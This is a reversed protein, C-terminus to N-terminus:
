QPRTSYVPDPKRALWTDYVTTRGAAAETADPNAVLKAAEWVVEYLLPAASAKLSYNGLLALDMNLYAVARSHLQTRFQETYEVSGVLGYEEAAWSCFVVSRRPRWGTENRMRM